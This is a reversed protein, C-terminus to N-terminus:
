PAASPALAQNPLETSGDSSSCFKPRHAPLLNSSISASYGSPIAAQSESGSAEGRLLQQRINSSPAREQHLYQNAHTAVREGYRMCTDYARRHDMNQVCRKGGEPFYVDLRQTEGVKAAVTPSANHSGASNHCRHRFQLSQSRGRRILAAFTPPPAAVLCTAAASVTLRSVQTAKGGRDHQCHPAFKTGGARRSAAM